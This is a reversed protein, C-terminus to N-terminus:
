NSKCKFNIKFLNDLQKKNNEEDKSDKCETEIHYLESLVSFYFQRKTIFSFIMYGLAKLLSNIGDM